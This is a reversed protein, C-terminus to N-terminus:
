RGAQERYWGVTDALGDEVSVLPRYGLVSRARGIDALSHRVDGARPPGHTAAVGERGTLEAIRDFLANVTVRGGCAVNFARGQLAEAHRAALLNAHVANAVHAFDRSQEGDGFITPTEGALFRHAFAAIVAAYASTPDQRPGFINFYRLVAADVPYCAAWARCAHEGSLKAAAYPSVPAAPQDEDMPGSLGPDGYCSSSGAYVVRRVGAERAAQLVAVTGDADVRWYAHPDEVSGPVSALAAQHFIVECGRVAGALADADLISATITRVGDGFGDLNDWTGSSLDDLAVVDAGLAVLAEILHSGIFGAGGTVLVRRGAFTGGHHATWDIRM